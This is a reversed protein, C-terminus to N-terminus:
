IEREIDMISDIKGQPFKEEKLGLKRFLNLNRLWQILSVDLKRIDDGSYPLTLASSDLGTQPTPRPM